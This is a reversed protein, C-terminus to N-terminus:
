DIRRCANCIVFERSIHSETRKNKHKCKKYDVKCCYMCTFGEKNNGAGYHHYKTEKISYVWKHKCIKKKTKNGCFWCKYHKKREEWYFGHGCKNCKKETSM